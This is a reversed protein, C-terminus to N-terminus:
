AFVTQLRTLAILEAPRKEKVERRQVIKKETVRGQMIKKGGGEGMVKRILQRLTNLRSLDVPPVKATGKSM